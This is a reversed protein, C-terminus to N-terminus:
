LKSLCTVFLTIMSFYWLLPAREAKKFLCISRQTSPISTTTRDSTFDFYCQPTGSRRTVFHTTNISWSSHLQSLLYNAQMACKSIWNSNALSYMQIQQLTILLLSYSQRKEGDTCGEINANFSHLLFNFFTNFASPNTLFFHTHTM